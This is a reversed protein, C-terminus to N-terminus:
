PRFEIALSTQVPVPEGHARYPRFRWWRVADM